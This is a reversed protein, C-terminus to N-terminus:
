LIFYRLSTDVNRESAPVKENMTRNFRDMDIKLDSPVNIKVEHVIVNSLDQYGITIKKNLIFNSLVGNNFPYGPWWADWPTPNKKMVCGSDNTNISPDLWFAMQNTTEISNDHASFTTLKSSTTPGKYDKASGSETPNYCQGYNNVTLAVQIQQGNGVSMVFEKGRWTMSHVAGAWRSETKITLPSGLVDKSITGDGLGCNLTKPVGNLPRNDGTPKGNADINIGYAMIQHANGDKLRSLDTFYFAHKCQPQDASCVSCNQGGIAQCVAAERPINATTAGLWQGDAYFHVDIPLNPNDPDGVWGNLQNCDSSSELSGLTDSAVAKSPLSFTLIFILILIKKM